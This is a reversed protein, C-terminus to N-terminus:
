HVELHDKTEEGKYAQMPSDQNHVEIQVPKKCRVPSEAEARSNASSISNLSFDRRRTPVTLLNRQSQWYAQRLNVPKFAENQQCDM